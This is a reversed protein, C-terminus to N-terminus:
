RRRRRLMAAGAIGVFVLGAPEPVRPGGVLSEHAGIDFDDGHPGNGYFDHLGVDIGYLAALDLGSDILPSGDDLTYELLEPLRYNEIDDFTGGNGVDFLLPDYNMSNPDNPNVYAGMGIRWYNNNSFSQEDASSLSLMAPDFFSPDGSAGQLVFLNNYFAIDKTSGDRFRVAASAENRTDPQNKAAPGMFVTNNYVLTDQIPGFAHIGGYGNKRGDNQSVNYRIVNGTFTKAGSFQALLFGAGDNAHSYNYQMVSNTVGGDLDFGGGDHHGATGNQFSENYQIKVNTSDWAWIGVPGGATSACERGNNKAVSYEIVGGNVQGIVIGSGSNGEGPRNARGTTDLARVHSILVNTHASRNAQNFDGEFNVGAKQNKEVISNTIKVDNFGSAGTDAGVKIGNSGFGRVYVNDIHIRQKKDGDNTYFRVGDQNNTFLGFNPDGANTVRSGPGSGIFNVNKLDIGDVDNAKFGFSDVANIIPRSSGVGIFSVPNTATGSDQATLEIGGTPTNFTGSLYVNDGPNLDLSNVPALTRYPNAATGAGGAGGDGNFYYDAAWAVRPHQQHVAVVAALAIAARSVLRKM